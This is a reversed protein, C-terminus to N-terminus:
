RRNTQVAVWYVILLVGLVEFVVKVKHTCCRSEEPSGDDVVLEEKGSVKVVKYKVDEHNDIIEESAGPLLLDRGTGTTISVWESEGIRGRHHKDCFADEVITVQEGKRLKRVPTSSVKKGKRVIAEILATYVTGERESESPANQVLKVSKVEELDEVTTEDPEEDLESGLQTLPNVTKSSSDTDRATHCTFDQVLIFVTLVLPLFLFILTVLCVLAEGASIRTGDVDVTAYEAAATINTTTASEVAGWGMWLSLVGALLVVLQSIYGLVGMNNSSLLRKAQEASELFPKLKLQLGLMATTIGIITWASTLPHQRSFAGAAITAFRAELYLLEWFFCPARYRSCLWGYRSEFARAHVIGKSHARAMQVFAYGPLLLIIPSAMLACGFIFAATREDSTARGFVEAIVGFSLPSALTFMAWGFNSYHAAREAASEDGVKEWQRRNRKVLMRVIVIPAPVVVVMCLMMMMKSNQTGGGFLCAVPVLNPLDLRIWSGILYGLEKLFDPWEWPFSLFAFCQQLQAVVIKAMSSMQTAVVHATRNSAAESMSSRLERQNAITDQFDEQLEAHEMTHRSSQLFSDLGNLAVTRPKLGDLVEGGETPEGKENADVIQEPSLQLLAKLRCFNENTAVSDGCLVFIVGSSLSQVQKAPLAAVARALQTKEQGLLGDASGARKALIHVVGDVFGDATVRMKEGPQVDDPVHVDIEQRGTDVRLIMGPSADDPVTCSMHVTSAAAWEETVCMCLAPTSATGHLHPLKRLGSSSVSWKGPRGHVSVEVTHGPSDQKPNVGDSNDGERVLLVNHKETEVSVWERDGIRARTHGDSSALEYVTVNDDPKLEGVRESSIGVASRVTATKMM